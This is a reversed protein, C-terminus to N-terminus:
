LGAYCVLINLWCRDDLLTSLLCVPFPTGDVYVGCLGGWLTCGMFGVSASASPGLCSRDSLLSSKGLGQDQECM